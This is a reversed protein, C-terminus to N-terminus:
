TSLEFIQHVRKTKQEKLIVELNTNNKLKM